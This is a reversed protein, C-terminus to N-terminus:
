DAGNARHVGPDQNNFSASLLQQPVVSRSCNLDDGDECNSSHYLWYYHFVNFCCLPKMMKQKLVGSRHYQPCVLAEEPRLCDSSALGISKAAPRSLRM